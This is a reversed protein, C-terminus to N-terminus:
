NSNSEEQKPLASKQNPIDEPEPEKRLWQTKQENQSEFDEPIFVRVQVWEQVTREVINGDVNRRLQISERIKDKSFLELEMKPQQVQSSDYMAVAEEYLLSDTPNNAVEVTDSTVVLIDYRGIKEFHDFISPSADMLEVATETMIVNGSWTEYVIDGALDFSIMDVSDSVEYTKHFVRRYQGSLDNQLFLLGIGVIVLRLLM